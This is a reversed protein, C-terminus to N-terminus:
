TKFWSNPFITTAFILMKWAFQKDSRGKDSRKMAYGYAFLFNQQKVSSILCWLREVSAHVWPIKFNKIKLPFNIGKKSKPGYYLVLHRHFRSIIFLYTISLWKSLESLATRILYVPVFRLLVLWINTVWSLSFGSFGSCLLSGVFEVRWMHRRTLSDFGPWMPSFLARVLADADEITHLIEGVWAFALWLTCLMCM